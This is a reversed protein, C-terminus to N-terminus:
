RWCVLVEVSFGSPERAFLPELKALDVTFFWDIESSFPFMASESSKLWKLSLDSVLVCFRFASKGRDPELTEGKGPSDSATVGILV